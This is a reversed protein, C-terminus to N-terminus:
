ASRHFFLSEWTGDQRVTGGKGVYLPRTLNEGAFIVYIGLAKPVKARKIVKNISEDARLVFQGNAPFRNRANNLATEFSM